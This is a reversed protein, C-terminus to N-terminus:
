GALSPDRAGVGKTDLAAGDRPVHWAAAEGRPVTTPAARPPRTAGVKVPSRKETEMWEAFEVCDHCCCAATPTVALPLRVRAAFAGCHCTVQVTRAPHLERELRFYHLALALSAAAAATSAAALLPADRLLELAAAM